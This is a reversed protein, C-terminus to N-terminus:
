TQHPAQNYRPAGNPRGSEGPRWDVAIPQQVDLPTPTAPPPRAMIEGDEDASRERRGHTPPDLRGAWRVWGLREYFCHRGTALAGLEYAEDMLRNIETMVRTGLGPGPSRAAGRRGRRLRVSHTAAGTCLVTSSPPTGPEGRASGRLRPRPLRSRHGGVLWGLVRRVGGRVSRDPGVVGGAHARGVAGLACPGDAALGCAVGAPERYRVELLAWLDDLSVRYDGGVRRARLRGSRILRRVHEPHFGLVTAVQRTPLELPPLEVTADDPLGALAVAM